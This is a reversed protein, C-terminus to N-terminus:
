KNVRKIIKLESLPKTLIKSHFEAKNITYGNNNKNDVRLDISVLKDTNLVKIVKEIFDKKTINLSEEFLIMIQFPIYEAYINSIDEIKVLGSLIDKLNYVHKIDNNISILTSLVRKNFEYMINQINCVSNIYLVLKEIDFNDKDTSYFSNIILSDNTVALELDEEFFGKFDFVKSLTSFITYNERYDCFKDISIDRIFGKNNKIYEESLIIKYEKGLYSISTIYNIGKETFLSNHTITTIYDINDLSPKDELVVTGIYFLSNSCLSVILESVVLSDSVKNTLFSNDKDRLAKDKQIIDKVNFVYEKKTSIELFVIETNDLYMISSIDQLYHLDLSRECLNFIIRNDFRDSDNFQNISNIFSENNIVEYQKINALIGVRIFIDYYIM